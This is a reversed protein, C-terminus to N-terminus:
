DGGWAEQGFIQPPAGVDRGLISVPDGACVAGAVPLWRGDVKRLWYDTTLDDGEVCGLLRGNRHRPLASLFAFGAGVSLTMVEFVIDPGTDVFRLRVADLIAKRETSGPAPTTVERKTIKPAPPPPAFFVALQAETPPEDTECLLGGIPFLSRWGQDDPGRAFLMGIGKGARPRGACHRANWTRAAGPEGLPRFRVFARAEGAEGGPFPKLRFDLIEFSKPPADDFNSAEHRWIDLLRRAEPERERPWTSADFTEAGAAGGVALGAVLAAVVARLARRM